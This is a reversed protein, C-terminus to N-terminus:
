FIIEFDGILERIKDELKKNIIIRKAVNYKRIRNEFEEKDIEEHTMNELNIDYIKEAKIIVNKEFFYADYIRDGVKLGIKVKSLTEAFFKDLYKSLINKLEKCLNKLKEIDIDEIMKNEFKEKVEMFEKVLDLLYGPIKNEKVLEEIKELVKGEEYKKGTIKLLDSILVNIEDIFRKLEEKFRKKEIQNKLRKMRNIFKRAKDLWEDIDRGSLEKIEGHDFAKWLKVAEDLIDIYEKELLKEKVVFLEKAVKVSERPAPPILGLTMVVAQFSTIIAWYIEKIFINKLSEKAEKIFDESTKIYNNIAEESPKIEGKKLLIKWPVFLGKDYIPIGDRLFTVAVPNMDRLLKWFETLTFVTVHLEKKSGTIAQADLVLGIIRANLKQKLEWLTHKKVDTDDIVVFTDIDSKKTATGRVYSGVLVYCVVYREFVKLILNRHTVALKIAEIYGKPDYIPTSLAIIDFIEFHSESALENIGSISYVDIWFDLNKSKVIEISNRLVKELLENKKLPDEINRDDVIVLIHKKEIREKLDKAEDSITLEYINKFIENEKPAPLLGIACIKDKYEKKLIEQVFIKENEM